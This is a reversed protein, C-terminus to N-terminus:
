YRPLSDELTQTGWFLLILSMSFDFEIVIVLTTLSRTMSMYAM